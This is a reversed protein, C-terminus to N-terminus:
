AKERFTPIASININVPPQDDAGVLTQIPKGYRYHLALEFARFVMQQDKSNLLKTWIRELRDEPLLRDILQKLDYTANNRKGKVRGGTKDKGKQFPRGEGPM